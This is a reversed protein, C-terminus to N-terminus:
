NSCTIHFVTTSALNPTNFYGSSLPSVTFSGSTNGSMDKGNWTGTCSIPNNTVIWSIRTSSGRRVSTADPTLSVVPAPKPTTFTSYTSANLGASNKVYGYWNYTTGQTLTYFTPSMSYSGTSPTSYAVCTATAPDAGNPFECFGRETITAATTGNTTGTGTVNAQLSVATSTVWLVSPSGITPATASSGGGGGSSASVTYTISGTEYIPNGYAYTGYSTLYPIQFTGNFSLVHTGATNPVSFTVFGSSNNSSSQGDDTSINISIIWPHGATAAQTIEAEPNTSINMNQGATFSSNGLGIEVTYGDLSGSGLGGCYQYACTAQVKMIGIGLFALLICSLLLINKLKFKNFFRPFSSVRIFYKKM